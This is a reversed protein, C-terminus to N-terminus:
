RVGLRSIVTAPSLDAETPFALLLCGEQGRFTAPIFLLSKVYRLDDEDFRSRFTRIDAPSRLVAVMRRAALFGTTFPEDPAFRLLGGSKEGVGITLDPTYGTVTRIFLAAAVASVRRSVEILSKMQATHSFSRPYASLFADYDIGNRKLLLPNSKEKEVSLAEESSAEREASVVKALDLLQEDSILDGIGSFSDGGAEPAARAAAPEAPQHSGAPEDHARYMEEKIRFVGDEMVIASRSDEVVKALDELTYSRLVGQSLLKQLEAESDKATWEPAAEGAGAEPVEELTELEEAEQPEEEPRDRPEQGAKEEAAELGELDEIDDMDPEVERARTEPKEEDATPLFDLEEGPPEPPLPVLEGMPELEELVEEFEETVELKEGAPIRIDVVEFASPAGADVPASIQRPPQAEEVAEVEAVEEVPEAEEVAEVEAVEEVPEAEEVAEAEAVEEVPQVDEASIEEVAIGPATRIPAPAVRVNQLAQQLMRELRAMDIASPAAASPLAPPQAPPAEARRGVLEIIENWSKAMYEDIVPKQRRSVRGIGRRIQWTIADRRTELERRWRGWDAGGPGEVLETILQVQFRKVRQRLVELPDSRLNFLLYVVLFVTLFVTGLLLGKMLDSMEFVSSPVLLAAVGGHRLVRSFVLLKEEPGATQPQNSQTRVLALPATWSPGTGSQWIRRIEAELAPTVAPEYNLLMGVTGVLRVQTVQPLLSAVVASSPVYVLATGVFGTAAGSVAVSYIFRDRGADISVRPPDTPRALLLAALAPSSQGQAPTGGSGSGAGEPTRDVQDFNLYTVRGPSVVRDSAFDSYHITRGDVGVLRIGGAGLASAMESLVRTREQIAQDSQVPDRASALVRQVDPGQLKEFWQGHWGEIRVGLEDLQRSYQAQLQPYFFSAELVGFLGSFALVAFGAFLVTAILLSIAVRLSQRM